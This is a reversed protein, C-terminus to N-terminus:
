SVHGSGNLGSFHGGAIQTAVKRVYQIAGSVSALPHNHSAVALSNGRHDGGVIEFQQFGQLVGTVGRRKLFGDCFVVTLACSGLIEALLKEASNADAM